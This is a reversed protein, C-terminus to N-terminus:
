FGVAVQATVTNSSNNLESDEYQYELKVVVLYNIQWRLGALMAILNNKHYYIEGKDYEIFDYRVYGTFKKAFKVGGYTYFAITNKPGTSDNDNTVYSLEGLLEFRKGGFYSLSGSYIMQRTLLSSTDSGGHHSIVGPSIMDYYVSGGVRWKEWPKFHVAATVSKYKDNDVVESSGIGNGVMLDYGINLKGLNQGQVSIGTTHLPIINASFLYPRFITPFFVRGHHYTDNWYNIPTHHKGVLLNHNGTFNYKLVVREISVNFSTPSTGFKFVSEGLFSLRDSLESTIFLDQEGLGFSVKENQYNGLVDVFGKIQTDQAMAEMGTLLLLTFIFLNFKKM